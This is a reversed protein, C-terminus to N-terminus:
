DLMFMITLFNMPIFVDITDIEHQATAYESYLHFCHVDKWGEQIKKNYFCQIISNNQIFVLIIFIITIVLIFPIYTNNNKYIIIIGLVFFLLLTYYVFWFYYYLEKKKNPISLDM